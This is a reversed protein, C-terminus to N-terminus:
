GRAGAPDAKLPQNDILRVTGVRAAILALVRERAAEAQVDVLEALQREGAVLQAVRGQKEVQKLIRTRM